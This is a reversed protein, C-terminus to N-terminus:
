APPASRSGSGSRGPSASARRVARRRERGPDGHPATRARRGAAGGRARHRHRHRPVGRDARPPDHAGARRARRRPVRAPQRLHLAALDAREGQGARRRPRGRRLEVGADLHKRAHRRRPHGRARAPRRRDRRARDADRRPRRDHRRRDRGPDAARAGDPLPPRGPDSRAAPRLRDARDHLRHVARLQVGLDGGARARRPTRGRGRRLAYLGGASNIHRSYRLWIALPAVFVVAAALMALGASDAADEVLGPAGVGRARAPRRLLRRRRRRLGVASRGSPRPGHSAPRRATATLQTLARTAAPM